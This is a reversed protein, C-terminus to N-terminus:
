HVLLNMCKFCNMIILSISVELFLKCLLLARMKLYMNQPVDVSKANSKDRLYSESVNVIEPLVAGEM